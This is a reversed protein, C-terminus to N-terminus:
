RDEFRKPLDPLTALNLELSTWVHNRDRVQVGITFVGYADWDRLEARQKNIIRKIHIASKAYTDDLHFVVPGELPSGDTSEVVLSFFFVDKHIKEKELVARISRGNRQSNGGWRGRQPDKKDIVPGPPPPRDSLADAERMNRDNSPSDLLSAVAPSWYNLRESATQSQLYTAVEESKALSSLSEPTIESVVDQMSEGAMLRHYIWEARDEHSHEILRGFYKIAEKTVLAFADPDKARMLPLARARLDSRHRLAEGDRFVMWGENALSEFADDVDEIKIKDLPVLLGRVIEPTIRRLVLGSCALQRAKPDRIHNMIRKIYLSAALSEQGKDSMAKINNVIQERDQPDAQLVLDVAVRVTLPERCLDERPIWTRQIPEFIGSAPDKGTIAESWSRKWDDKLGAQGLRDAMETAEEVSLPHLRINDDPSDIGAAERLEPVDARGSVVVRLETLGKEHFQVLMNSLKQVANFNWQVVEFTDLVLLFARKGFTIHKQLIEIFKSFLPDQTSGSEGETSSAKSRDQRIAQSLATLEQQVEPFQLKVQRAIEILLLEPSDPALVARDFDLYAFPFRRKQNLAHNLLFKALLASKGLGGDAELIILTPKKSMGFKSIVRSTGRTISELIGESSLEDVFSRLKRLEDERGVFRDQRTEDTLDRTWGRETGILLRLPALLEGLEVRRKLDDLSPVTQPLETVFQLRERAALAASLERLPAEDPNLAGYDNALFCRLWATPLRVPDAHIADFDAKDTRIAEQLAQQFVGCNKAANLFEARAADTLRLRRKSNIMVANSCALLATHEGEPPPLEGFLEELLFTDKIAASIVAHSHEFPLLSAPRTPQIPTLLASDPNNILANYLKKALDGICKATEETLDPRDLEQQIIEFFAEQATQLNHM